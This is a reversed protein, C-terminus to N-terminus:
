RARSRSRSHRESLATWCADAVEDLPREGDVEVIRQRHGEEAVARDYAKAIRRQLPLREFLDAAGTSAAERRGLAVEPRVRLFLTLDPPPAFRNIEAIWDMPADLSQYALSSLVYRDCVVDVGGALRPEIEARLHDLRDAAFLLALAQRDFPGTGGSLRGTLVQRIGVGFPGGSPEATLHARRGAASLRAVLRTAQSTSGAGDLGELVVFRGRKM